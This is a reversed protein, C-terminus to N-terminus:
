DWEDRLRAIEGPEWVGPLSGAYEALVDRERELVVRGPGDARVVLRDGECLGAAKMAEAPITIQHKSSIRSGRRAKVADM